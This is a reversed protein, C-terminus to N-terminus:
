IWFHLNKGFFCLSYLPNFPIYCKLDLALTARWKPIFEPILRLVLDKLFIYLLHCIIISRLHITSKVDFAM